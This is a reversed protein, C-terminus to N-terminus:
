QLTVKELSDIKVRPSEGTKQWTEYAELAWQEGRQIADIMRMALVGALQEFTERLAEAMTEVTEENMM